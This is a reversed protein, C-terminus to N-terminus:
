GKELSTLTSLHSGYEELRALEAAEVVHVSRTQGSSNVHALLPIM